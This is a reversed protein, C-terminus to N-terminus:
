CGAGSVQNPLWQRIADQVMELHVDYCHTDDPITVLRADHYAEATEVSYHYPVVEDADGHTLLVPGQYRSIADEVHIMRAARLYNGSLSLGKDTILEEPIREPDFKIGLFDGKRAMEPIMVAPSMPIIGRIFEPKLGAALMVTLGGQSHGCLYLDTVFPLGRAYDIVTMANNMWKFLNHERFSGESKGHGYMDVRLTAYGMENMTQSVAAIHREESYGTFGHIVIVLPCKEPNKEPMDLTSCLRINDDVIFM